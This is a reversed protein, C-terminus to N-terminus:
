PLSTLANNLGTWRRFGDLWVTTPATSPGRYAQLVDLTNSPLSGDANTQLTPYGSFSVTKTWSTQGKLRHWIEIMGSRDTAWHCHIVLEHWVGTQMPAPIAYLPPQNTYGPSDANSDYQFYPKSTTSIGTALALTVHDDHAQLAVNPSGLGLGQYNLEAISVGWFNTGGTGTGSSWGQPVYFMLTYYDDSGVGVPRRTIVQSRTRGGSWAPLTFQGGYAGEGRTQSDVYFNGFHVQASDVYRYNAAQPVWPAV